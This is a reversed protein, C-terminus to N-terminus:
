FETILIRNEYKNGNMDFLLKGIDKFGNQKYYNIARQNKHYASLWVDNYNLKKLASITENLLM